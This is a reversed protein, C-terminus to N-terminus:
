TGYYVVDVTASAATEIIRILSFQEFEWVQVIGVLLPAGVTITPNTGDARWRCAQAIAVIEIRTTGAPVTLATAAAVNTLQQYSLLKRSAM